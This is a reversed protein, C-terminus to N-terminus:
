GSAVDSGGTGHGHPGTDRARWHGRRCAHAGGHRDHARDVVGGGSGRFVGARPGRHVSRVVRNCCFVDCGRPPYELSPDDPQTSPSSPSSSCTKKQTKAARQCFLKAGGTLQTANSCFIGPVRTLASTPFGSPRLSAVPLSRQNQTGPRNHAAKSIVIIM